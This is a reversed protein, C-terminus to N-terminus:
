VKSFQKSVSVTKHVPAVDKGSLIQDAQVIAAEMKPYRIKRYGRVEEPLGLVRVWKQYEEPNNYAFKDVM